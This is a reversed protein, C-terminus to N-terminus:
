IGEQRNSQSGTYELFRAQAERAGYHQRFLRECQVELENLELGEGHQYLYAGLAYAYHLLDERLYVGHSLYLRVKQILANRIVTRSAMVAREDLTKRASQKPM